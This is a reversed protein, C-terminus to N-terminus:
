PSQSNKWEVWLFFVGACYAVTNFIGFIAAAIQPSRYLSGWPYSSWVSLQVVFAIFYLVCKIGTNIFETLIWNIPIKLAERISFLYVFTWMLTSIFSLVAVFMFWRSASIIAPTACSMCIIGILLQVLKLIGPITKFYPVNLVIGGIFGPQGPDTKVTPGQRSDSGNTTTSNEVTVVTESMM